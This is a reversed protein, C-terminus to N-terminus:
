KFGSILTSQKNQLITRIGCKGKIINFCKISCLYFTNHRRGSPKFTTVSYIRKDRDLKTLDAQCFINRCQNLAKKKYIEQMRELKYQLTGAQYIVDNEKAIKRQKKDEYRLNAIQRQMTVLEENLDKIIADYHPRCLMIYVSSEPSYPDIFYVQHLNFTKNCKDDTDLIANCTKM